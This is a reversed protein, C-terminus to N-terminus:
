WDSTPLGQETEKGQGQGDRERMSASSSCCQKKRKRLNEGGGHKYGSRFDVESPWEQSSLDVSGGSFTQTKGSFWM